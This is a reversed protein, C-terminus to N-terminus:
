CLKKFDHTLGLLGVGFVTYGLTAVIDRRRDPEAFLQSSESVSFVFPFGSPHRVIADSRGALSIKEGMLIMGTRKRM